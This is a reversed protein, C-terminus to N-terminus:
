LNQLTAWESKQRSVTENNYTMHDRLLPHCRASLPLIELQSVPLYTVIVRFLLTLLTITAMCTSSM